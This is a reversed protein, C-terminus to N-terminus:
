INIITNGTIHNSYQRNSNKLPFIYKDVRIKKVINGDNIKNIILKKNNLIELYKSCPKDLFDKNKKDRIKNIISWLAFIIILIKKKM